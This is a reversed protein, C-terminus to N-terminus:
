VLLSNFGIPMDMADAETTMESFEVAALTAITALQDVPTAQLTENAIKEM